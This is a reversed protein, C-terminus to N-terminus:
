RRVFLFDGHDHGTEYIPSYEPDQPSNNRVKKRVQIFLEHADLVGGNDRLASILASAFISHGDGGSDLVPELGGSTLATRSKKDIIRQLETQYEPSRPKVKLARTLTSRTLSGSFCSDAVVMVHKASMAKIQKRIRDVPIYTSPDDRRADSPIWFGEETDQDLEGHGGFYILVNDNRGVNSRLGVIAKFMESETANELVDVTFGYSTRLIRSVTRADNIPTNLDKFNQYRNNGIVLAHYNGYDLNPIAAHAVSPTSGGLSKIKLRALGAYVGSPFQRLYERFMDPNDSDRISKWFELELESNDAAATQTPANAAVTSSQNKLRRHEAQAQSKKEFSKGDNTVCNAHTSHSVKQPTACWIKESRATVTQNLSQINAIVPLENILECTQTESFVVKHNGISRSEVEMNGKTTMTTNLGSAVDVLSHGLGEFTLNLRRDGNLVISGSFNLATGLVVKQTGGEVTVGLIKNQYSYEKLDPSVNLGFGMLMERFAAKSSIPQFEDGQIVKRNLLPAFVGQLMKSLEDKNSAFNERIYNDLERTSSSLNVSEDPETEAFGELVFDTGRSGTDFIFYAEGIGVFLKTKGSQRYSKIRFREVDKSEEGGALVGRTTKTCSWEYGARTSLTQVGIIPEVSGNYGYDKAYIPVPNDSTTTAVTSTNVRKLNVDVIKCTQRTKSKCSNLAKLKAEPISDGWHSSCDNEPSCAAAVEKGQDMPGKAWKKYRAKFGESM